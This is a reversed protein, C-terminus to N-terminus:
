LAQVGAAINAYKVIGYSAPANYGGGVFPATAVTWPYNSEYNPKTESVPVNLTNLYTVGGSPSLLKGMVWVETLLDLYESMMSARQILQGTQDDEMAEFSISFISGFKRNQLKINLGATSVEPYLGGNEPVESPFGVSHLPAYLETDKNSPVVTVWEKWSTKKVDLYAANAI